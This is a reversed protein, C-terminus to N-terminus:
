EVEDDDEDKMMLLRKGIKNEERKETNMQKSEAATRQSNRRWCGCRSHEKQQQKM